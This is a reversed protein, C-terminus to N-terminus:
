ILRGVERIAEEEEKDLNSSEKKERKADDEEKDLNSSEEKKEKLM